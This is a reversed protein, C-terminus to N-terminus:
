IFLLVAMVSCSVSLTYTLKKKEAAEKELKEATNKLREIYYECGRAESKAFGRGFSSSFEVMINKEEEGLCISDACQETAAILGKKRAVALFGSKELFDDKYKELILSLPACFCEVNTKCEIVLRLLARCAECRRKMVSTKERAYVLSALVAFLAGLIKLQM